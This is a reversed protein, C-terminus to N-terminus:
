RLRKQKVIVWIVVPSGLLATIANIPLAITYGANSVVDCFLLVIAGLFICALLLHRHNSSKIFGKALHPVAIGIFGIPGCFATVTGALLCAVITIFRRSRTINLGMSQAYREGLILQDLPKALLFSALTGVIITLAYAGLQKNTVGGLSGFTWLLYDKIQDPHAFYQWISVIALTINAIMLGVILLVAQDQVRKAVALVIFMVVMSGSVSAIILLWNASFPLNSISLASTVSGFGLMVLAVGFSGGATIGLIGPGALPNRFFTQMLLGSVALAMGALSATIAKPIRIEHLIYTYKANEGHSFAAWLESLPIDVPGLALDIAFGVLLLFGLALFIYKDRALKSL